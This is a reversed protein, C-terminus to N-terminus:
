HVTNNKQPFSKEELVLSHDLVMWGFMGVFQKFLVAETYSQNRNWQKVFVFM